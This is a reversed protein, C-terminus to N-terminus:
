SVLAQATLDDHANDMIDTDPISSQKMLSLARCFRRNAEAKHIVESDSGVPQRTLDKMRSEEMDEVKIM